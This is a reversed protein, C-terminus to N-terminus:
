KYNGLKKVRLKEVINSADGKSPEVTFGFDKFKENCADVALERTCSDYLKKSVLIEETHLPKNTCSVVGLISFIIISKRM